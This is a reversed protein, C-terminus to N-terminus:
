FRGEFIRLKCLFREIRLFEASILGSEDKKADFQRNLPNLM